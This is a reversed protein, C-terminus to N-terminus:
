QYINKAHLVCCKQPPNCFGYKSIDDSGTSCSSQCSAGDASANCPYVCCKQSAECGSAQIVELPFDCSDSCTGGSSSCVLSGGTTGTTGTTGGGILGQIVTNTLAYSGLIVALGLVAWVLVQKGKNIQDSKGGSTLMLIGGYVFMLLAFAGVTGLVAKIIRGIIEPITVNGVPSVSELSVTGGGTSPTTTGGGTPSPSTTTKPSPSPSPAPTAALVNQALIFTVGFILTFIFITAIKTPNKM